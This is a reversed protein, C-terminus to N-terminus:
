LAQLNENISRLSPVMEDAAKYRRVKQPFELYSNSENMETKQWNTWSDRYQSRIPSIGRVKDVGHEPHNTLSTELDLCIMTIQKMSAFDDGLLQTARSIMESDAGFRVTDWYGLKENLTKREFMCSISAKRCVGDLSFDTIRGIHGFFGDPRIRVMYGLSAKLSGSHSQIERMHNELRQPVAWDDADHGTVYDGTAQDLGINKSVYPGVNNKNRFIKVRSDADAIKKLREWTGDESCDDVIILELNRWTQRLISRAAYTVTEEANWAPMIVSIKVSSSVAPLPDSTMRSLLSGEQDKLRLPALGFKELYSNMHGLWTPEDENELAKNGKLVATTYALNEPLYQEAMSIAKDVGYYRAVRSCAWLVSRHDPEINGEVGKRYIHTALPNSRKKRVIPHTDLYFRTSFKTNPDRMMMAGFKVYHEIPDMGLLPVDRYTELYWKEDFLKSKRIRKIEADNESKSKTVM